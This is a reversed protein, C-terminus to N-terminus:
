KRKGAPAAGAAPAAIPVLGAARVRELAAFFADFTAPICTPM